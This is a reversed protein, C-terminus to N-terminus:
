QPPRVEYKGLNLQKLGAEIKARDGVAIVILKGPDLYKKAAAQASAATVSSIADPLRTYYDLGLDYVFLNSLSGVTGGSTEFESPLARIISDKAMTLEDATVPAEGM